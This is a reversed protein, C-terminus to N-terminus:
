DLPAGVAEELHAFATQMAHVSDLYERDVQQVERQAALVTLINAKGSRYSDEAMDELKRSSPLLTDRYLKVQFLRVELDYYASEVKADVSRRTAALERELAQEAAVSGAIEGQYRNLLPVEVSIQGRGGAQFNPPSNFDAGFQLGLNPIRQARLLATQSQQVRQEQSIRAIESSSAGSHALLDELALSPPTATFADGIDWDAMPPENLLANLDNLAVKEEQQAIELDARERAVELDAQTVEIQPIDGAQFRAEAIERLHEGLKLVDAREATTGRAFALGYYARRVNMRVQREAAAINVDTLAAQQRALDIRRSRKPGIELPLDVFSSEHPEDRTVAFNISPNPRESAIRIGALAVARQARAAMLDLNRKNALDLAASITLKQRQMQNGQARVSSGIGVGLVIFLVGALSAKM